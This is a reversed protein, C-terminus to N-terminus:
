IKSLANFADTLLISMITIFIIIKSVSDMPAIRKKSNSKKTFAEKVADPTYKIYLVRSHYNLSCKKFVRELKMSSKADVPKIFLVLNVFKHSYDLPMGIEKILRLRLLEEIIWAINDLQPFNRCIVRIIGSGSTRKVCPINFDQLTQCLSAHANQVSFRKNPVKTWKADSQLLEQTKNNYILERCARPYFHHEQKLKNM